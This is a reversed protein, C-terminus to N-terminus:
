RYSGAALVLVKCGPASTLMERCGAADGTDLLLELCSAGVGLLWCCSRVARMLQCFNGVAAGLM